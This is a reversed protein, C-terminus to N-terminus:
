WWYICCWVLSMFLLDYNVLYVIWRCVFEFLLGLIMQLVLSGNQDFTALKFNRHVELFIFKKRIPDYFFFSKLLIPRSAIKHSNAFHEILLWVYRRILAARWLSYILNVRRSSDFSFQVRWKQIRCLIILKRFSIRSQFCINILTRM